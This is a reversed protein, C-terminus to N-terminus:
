PPPPPPFPLSLHPHPTPRQGTGVRGGVQEVVKGAVLDVTALGGSASGLLARTGGTSGDLCMTTLASGGAAQPPVCM